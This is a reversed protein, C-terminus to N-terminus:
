GRVAPLHTRRLQRAFLTWAMWGVGVGILAVSTPEPIATRETLTFRLDVGMYTGFPEGRSRLFELTIVDGRSVALRLAGPGGSGTALDLPIASTGNAFTLVGGSLLAGNLRLFWDQSRGLHQEVQWLGGQIEVDGDLPATWTIGAPQNEFGSPSNAPDNNHLYARGAPLDDRADVPRAVGLFFAPIHGRGQFQQFAYAPQASAFFRRGPDYDAFHTTLPVGPAANYSWVGNPNGANSWDRALDFVSAEARASWGFLLVVAVLISRRDLRRCAPTELSRNM